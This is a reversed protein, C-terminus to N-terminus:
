GARLRGGPAAAQVMEEKGGSGVVPLGRVVEVKGGLRENICM